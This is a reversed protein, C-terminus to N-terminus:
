DLLNHFPKQPTFSYSPIQEEARATPLPQDQSTSALRQKKQQPAHIENRLCSFEAVLEDFDAPTLQTQYRAERIKRQLQNTLGTFAPGSLAQLVSLEQEILGLKRKLPDGPGQASQSRRLIHRDAQYFSQTPQSPQQPRARLQLESTTFNPVNPRPQNQSPNQMQKKLALNEFILQTMLQKTNASQLVRRQFSSPDANRNPDAAPSIGSSELLSATENEIIQNLAKQYIAVLDNSIKKEANASNLQDQLQDNQFQLDRMDRQMNAILTEQSEWKSPEASSIERNRQQPLSLFNDQFFISLDVAAPQNFSARMSVSGPSSIDVVIRPPTKHTEQEITNLDVNGPFGQLDPIPLRYQSSPFHPNNPIM